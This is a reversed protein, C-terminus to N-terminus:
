DEQPSNEEPGNPVKKRITVDVAVEYGEYELMVEVKTPILQGSDILGCVFSVLKDHWVVVHEESMDAEQAGMSYITRYGPSLIAEEMHSLWVQLGQGVKKNDDERSM